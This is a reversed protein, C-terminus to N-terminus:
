INNIFFNLANKYFIKETLENTYNLKQLENAIKYVDEIGRFDRPLDTGDLDCGMAVTDAGGLSLYHEIHSIIDCM